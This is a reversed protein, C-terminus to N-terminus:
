QNDRKARVKRAERRTSRKYLPTSARRPKGEQLSDDGTAILLSM